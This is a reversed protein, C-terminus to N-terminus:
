LYIWSKTELRLFDISVVGNNWWKVMKIMSARLIRSANYESHIYLRKSYSTRRETSGNERVLIMPVNGDEGSCVWVRVSADNMQKNTEIAQQQRQFASSSSLLSSATEPVAVAVMVLWPVNCCVIWCGERITHRVDRGKKKNRLKKEWSEVLFNKIYKWERWYIDVAMGWGNYVKEEINRIIIAHWPGFSYIFRYPRPPLSHFVRMEGDVRIWIFVTGNSHIHEANKRKIKKEKTRKYEKPGKRDWRGSCYRKDKSTTSTPPTSMTQTDDDVVFVVVVVVVDDNADSENVRVM